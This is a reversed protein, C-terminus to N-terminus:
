GRRYFPKAAVTPIQALIPAPLLDELDEPGKVTSDRAEAAVALFLGLGLGLALGAAGFALPNPWHAKRPVDAQRAVSFRPGAGPLSRWAADVERWQEQIELYVSQARELDRTLLALDRTSADTGPSPALQPPGSAGAGGAIEAERRELAAIEAEAQALETRLAEPHPAAPSPQRVTRELAEIRETLAVVDPHLETYRRLLAVREARLRDLEDPERAGQTASPASAATAQRLRETRARAAQLAAKVTAREGPVRAEPSPVAEVPRDAGPGGPDQPARRVALALTAADVAKKAEALRGELLAPDAQARKAHEAETAAALLSAVRDAVRAARVPDGLECQLLAAGGARSEVTLAAALVEIQEGRKTGDGAETGAERLVSELVAADKIRQRAAQLSRGEIDIGARRLAEAEEPEWLIQLETSALYRPPLVWAAALALTLTAAATVSVVRPRNLCVGPLALLRDGLM